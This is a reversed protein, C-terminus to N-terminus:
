TVTAEVYVEIYADKLHELPYDLGRPTVCSFGVVLNGDMAALTFVDDRGYVCEKVWEGGDNVIQELIDDDFEKYDIGM